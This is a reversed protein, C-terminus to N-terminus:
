SYQLKHHLIRNHVKRFNLFKMLGRWDKIMFRMSHLFRHHHSIKSMQHRFEHKKCLTIKQCGLALMKILSILPLTVWGLFLKQVTLFLITTKQRSIKQHHDINNKKLPQKIESSIKM